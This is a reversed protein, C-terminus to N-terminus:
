ERDRGRCGFWTSYVPMGIQNEVYPPLGGNFDLYTGSLAAGDAALAVPFQWPVVCCFQIGGESPEPSKDYYRFILGKASPFLVLDQRVPAAFAEGMPVTEGPRMKSYDYVMALSMIYSTRPGLPQSVPDVDSVSRYHGAEILPKWWADASYWPNDSALPYVGASDSAYADIAIAHQRLIVMERTLRSRSFVGALSPIMLGILIMIIGLCVVLEVLSFAGASRPQRGSGLTQPPRKM